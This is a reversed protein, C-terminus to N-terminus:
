RASGTGRHCWATAAESSLALLVLIMVGAHYVASLQTASDPSAEYAVMDTVVILGTLSLLVRRAWASRRLMQIACVVASAALVVVIGLLVRESSTEWSGDLVATLLTLPGILMTLIAPLLVQFPAKTPPADSSALPDAGPDPVVASLDVVPLTGDTHVTDGGGNRSHYGTTFDVLPEVTAAPEVGTVSGVIFDREVDIDADIKHTIQLTFLSLGVRRDYTGAALWDVRHGGPLLWGAPTRWLRVHHRQSPNGSVEQQYAADQMRGFVLLPSVPAEPYSRATLSSTVIRVSSALDVPDAKVWGARRMASSVQEGTGRFALNLPDGLLGDSTRTRGIFYDPVYISSLIRNLRPLTLYALVLWFVVILLLGWWSIGFSARVVAWALWVSALTGVLFFLRDVLHTRDVPRAPLDLVKEPVAGVAAQTDQM